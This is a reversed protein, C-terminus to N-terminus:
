AMVSLLKKVEQSRGRPVILLKGGASVVILDRIGLAAVEIGDSRIYCNDCDVATVPGAHSSGGVLAALADWSGVDSWGPSMPVVAVLSSLELVAYDVSEAPCARLLDPDPVIRIGDRRSGAIAERAAKVILPCTRSAERLFVAAPLLFIGANWLHDGGAVMAEAVEFAPKEVFRAVERVGATDALEDGVQLYGYGTEPGTPHIGFTVLRGGRAALEGACIAEHFAAVDQIVHDSPMVLMLAEEGHIELAAIAAMVIAPATNRGCTELILRANGDGGLHQQCLDAHQISTVVIPADFLAADRVRNLAEEFLSTQNVLPLFQKPREKTSFPWLRSGGGGSLVVPVILRQSPTEVPNALENGRVGVDSEEPCTLDAHRVTLEM